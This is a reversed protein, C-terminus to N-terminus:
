LLSQQGFSFSWASIKAVPNSMQLLYFGFAIWAVSFLLSKILQAPSNPVERREGGLTNFKAAEPAFQDAGNGNGNLGFPDGSQRPGLNSANEQRWGSDAESSFARPQPAADSGMAKKFNRWAFYGPVAAVLMTMMGAGAQSASGLGGILFQAAGAFGWLM